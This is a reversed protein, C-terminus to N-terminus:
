KRICQSRLFVGILSWLDQISDDVKLYLCSSQVLEMKKHEHSVMLVKVMYNFARFYRALNEDLLESIHQLWHEAERTQSTNNQSTYHISNTVIDHYMKGM